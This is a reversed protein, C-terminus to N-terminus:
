VLDSLGDPVYGVGRQAKPKQRPVRALLEAVQQVALPITPKKAPAPESLLLAEHGAVLAEYASADRAKLEAGLERFLARYREAETFVDNSLTNAFVAQLWFLRDRVQTLMDILEADTRTEQPEPMM